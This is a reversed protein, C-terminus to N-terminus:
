KPAIRGWRGSAAVKKSAVRANILLMTVHYVGRAIGTPCLFASSWSAVVKEVKAVWAAM